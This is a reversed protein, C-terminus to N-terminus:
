QTSLSLVNWNGEHRKREHASRNSQSRYEQGKTQCEPFRCYFRVGQHDVLDHEMLQNTYIFTKPCKDCQVKRLTPRCTTRKTHVKNFHANVRGQTVFTKDCEEHPCIKDSTPKSSPKSPSDLKHMFKMHQKMTSNGKTTRYECQDCMRMQHSYQMHAELKNKSSYVETCAQCQIFGKHVLLSHKSKHKKNLFTIGCGCDTAELEHEKYHDYYAHRHGRGTKYDELKFNKGCLQCQISQIAKTNGDREILPDGKQLIFNKDTWRKNKQVENNPTHLDLPESASYTETFTKTEIMLPQNEDEEVIFNSENGSYFAKTTSVNRNVEKGITSTTNEDEQRECNSQNDSEFSENSTEDEVPYSSCISKSQGIHDKFLQNLEIGLSRADEIISSEFSLESNDKLNLFKM